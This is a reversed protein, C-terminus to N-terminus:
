YNEKLFIAFTKGKKVRRVLDKKELGNVVYSLKAKSMDTRIRLTSQTIGDQEKIAKMVRKEFSDLGKLILNFKEEALLRNKNEELTKVIAEEGKAFFILYFGLAFIFGIIGFAIHAISLGSEVEVCGEKDFCGLERAQLNLGGILQIIIFAIVISIVLFIIGLRRNNM